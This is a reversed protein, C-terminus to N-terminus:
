KRNTDGNEDEEEDRNSLEHEVENLFKLKKEDSLLMLFYLLTTASLGSRGREVNGYERESIHMKESMAAQTLGLERRVTKFVNGHKKNNLISKM